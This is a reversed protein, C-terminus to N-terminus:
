WWRWENYNNNKNHNNNNNLHHLRYLRRSTQLVALSHGGRHGNMVIDEEGTPTESLLLLLFGRSRPSRHENESSLSLQSLPEVKFKFSVM